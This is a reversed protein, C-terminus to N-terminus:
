KAVGSIDSRLEKIFASVFGPFGRLPPQPPGTASAAQTSSTRIQQGAIDEFAKSVNDTGTKHMEKISSDTKVAFRQFTRSNALGKILVENAIYNAVRQVFQNM